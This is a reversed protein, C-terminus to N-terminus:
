RREPRKGQDPASHHLPPHHRNKGARHLRPHPHSGHPGHAPRPHFRAHQGHLHVHGQVPRVAREPLPGHVLLETGPRASRAPGLVPRRSFRQGTQRDRRAHDGPEDFYKSNDLVKYWDVASIFMEPYTVLIERIMQKFDNGGHGNLIVLKDIGQNDLSEVIDELIRAQTSSHMNICGPYDMQASNVGFPIAPLVLVKAGAEWAMSASTAAIAETEYNDTAYPLHFNHPETAGWPLIAVQYDMDQVEKLPTEALIYPRKEM